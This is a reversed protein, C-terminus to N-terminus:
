TKEKKRRKEEPAFKVNERAYFQKLIAVAEEALVGEQVELPAREVLGCATPAANEPSKLVNLVTGAGGFRENRAGFVVRALRHNRPLMRLAAACMVCPEITVVLTHATRVDAMGRLAVLEAHQTPDCTVNTLNHGRAVVRGEADLVVCGVPVEDTEMAKQAEALALRMWAEERSGEM